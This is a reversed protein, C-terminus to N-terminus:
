LAVFTVRKKHCNLITMFEDCFTKLSSNLKNRSSLTKDNIHVNRSTDPLIGDLGCDDKCHQHHPSLSPTIMKAWLDRFDRLSIIPWM